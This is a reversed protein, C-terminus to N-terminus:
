IDAPAEARATYYIGLYPINKDPYRELKVSAISEGNDHRYTLMVHEGPRYSSLEDQLATVDDVQVGNIAVIMDGRSIGAEDAPSGREVRTVLIGQEPLYLGKIERKGVDYGM